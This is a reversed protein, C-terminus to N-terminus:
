GGTSRAASSRAVAAKTETPIDAGPVTGAESAQASMLREDGTAPPIPAPHDVPRRHRHLLGGLEREPLRVGRGPLRGQLDAAGRVRHRHGPRRRDPRRHPRLDAPLEQAVLVMNITFFGAIMPFTIGRFQQWASAGDLAAAEYLEEPVTQLGAIYIIINFAAAQWVALIVIGIWATSAKTLLSTSLFDIGLKAGLAPLSNNFLYNFIYGIVLIALVNPIFYIGRLTTKWKIKGNLAVAIALSVINVLVTAVIAILFTFWYAHIVRPDSFLAMYNSFGVFNYPGYGPSDTFSYYVGQIVPITHFVFFLVLAPLVMMYFARPVASGQQPPAAGPEDGARRRPATSTKTDTMLDSSGAGLDPTERGPGLQRRPREPVAGQRRRARLDPPAPRAPDGPHVPPRHLRRHAGLRHLEAGRGAGPRREEPREPDPDRGTGQLLRDHGRAADPVRHAEDGGGPSGRGPCATLAVDVGSVLTTKSPDDTAPLAMSGVTFEPKGLRIQPVAYSGLLLMASEGRAFAATGDEYGKSLPDPQTYKYLEGLETATSDWGEAFTTDGEFRKEFFDAPQLQASLPALPSQPTWNDALMGYFPTVGEAKFTQAAAILEDFTKPVAVDYKAFLEENYLLGSANAAFPVGNIEGEGGRGLAGLVELFAPNVDDLVPEDSFDRFIKATAFEGFTGNANLTMVDPVDNKVLRTRMATEPSAPNDVVVRIDPNEKEFQAALTKFYDQAEPKFQFFVLTTRDDGSCSSLMGAILVASLAMIARVARTLRPRRCAPARGALTQLSM